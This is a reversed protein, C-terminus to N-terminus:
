QKSDKQKRANGGLRLLRLDRPYTIHRSSAVGLSRPRPDFCEPSPQSIETINLAFVDQNLISVNLPFQITDWTKHGFEDLELDIDKGNL